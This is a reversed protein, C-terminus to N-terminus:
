ASRYPEHNQALIGTVPFVFMVCFGPIVSGTKCKWISVTLYLEKAVSVVADTVSCLRLYEAYHQSGM